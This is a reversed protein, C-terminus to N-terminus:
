NIYEKFTERFFAELEDEDTISNIRGVLSTLMGTRIRDLEESQDNSQKLATYMKRVQASDLNFVNEGFSILEDKDMQAVQQRLFGIIKSKIAGISEPASGPRRPRSRQSKWGTDFASRTRERTRKRKEYYKWREKIAAPAVKTLHELSIELIVQHLGEYMNKFIPEGWFLRVLRTIAPNLTLIDLDGDIKSSDGTRLAEEVIDIKGKLLGDIFAAQGQGAEVAAEIMGEHNLAAYERELLPSLKDGRFEGRTEEIPKQKTAAGMKRLAEDRMEEWERLIRAADPSGEQAREEARRVDEESRRRRAEAERQQQEREQKRAVEEDWVAKAIKKSELLHAQSISLIDAKGKASESNWVSLILIYWPGFGITRFNAAVIATADGTTLVQRIADRKPSSVRDWFADFDEGKSLADRSLDKMEPRSACDLESLLLERARVSINPYEGEPKAKPGARPEPDEELLAKMKGKLKIASDLSKILMRLYEMNKRITEIRQGLGLGRFVLPDALETIQIFYERRTADEDRFGNFDPRIMEAPRALLVECAALKKEAFAQIGQPEPAQAVMRTVFQDIIHTAQTIESGSLVSIAETGKTAGAVREQVASQAGSVDPPSPMIKIPRDMAVAKFYTELEPGFQALNMVIDRVELTEWYQRITEVIANKQADFDTMAAIAPMVSQLVEPWNVMSIFDQVQDASTFSDLYASLAPVLKKSLRVEPNTNVREESVEM